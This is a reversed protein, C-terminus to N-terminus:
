NVDPLCSRRARLCHSYSHGKLEQHPEGLSRRSVLPGALGVWAKDSIDVGVAAGVTSLWLLLQQVACRGGGVSFWDYKWLCWRRAEWCSPSLSKHSWFVCGLRPLLLMLWDCHTGWLFCINWGCLGWWGRFFIWSTLLFDAMYIGQRQLFMFCSKFLLLLCFCFWMMTYIEVFVALCWRLLSNCSIM